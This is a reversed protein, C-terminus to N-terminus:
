SIETAIDRNSYKRKIIKNHEKQVRKTKRKHELSLASNEKKAHYSQERQLKQYSQFQKADIHGALIATQLACGESKEHDCDTYRCQQSLLSIETFVDDDNQEVVIIDLERMGPTDILFGGGPLPFLERSTTTHRGRGDDERVSSTRQTATGLLWNTITSKGAGSSGLLVATTDPQFYQAFVEMGTGHLASVFHLPAQYALSALQSQYSGTDTVVDAKNLIIVPAIKSQEALMLYRELRRLNFDDDLGMVIFMVDVNTAIIQQKQVTHKRTRDSANRVIKTKRPLVREIVAQGAALSVYEVFDGVKPFDETVHFTGRITANLEVGNARLIYNTKHEEVVRAILTGGQSHDQEM